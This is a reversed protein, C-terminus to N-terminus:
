GACLSGEQEWTRIQRQISLATPLGPYRAALEDRITDAISNSEKYPDAARMEQATKLGDDTWEPRRGEQGKRGGAVALRAAPYGGAMMGLVIAEYALEAPDAEDGDVVGRYLTVVWAASEMMKRAREILPPVPRPGAAVAERYHVAAEVVVDLPGDGSSPRPYGAADLDECALEVARSVLLSLALEHQEAKVAELHAATRGELSLNLPAAM